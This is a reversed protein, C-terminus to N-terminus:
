VPKLFAIAPFKDSTLTIDRDPITSCMFFIRCLKRFCLQPIEATGRLDLPSMVIRERCDLDPNPYDIVDVNLATVGTM